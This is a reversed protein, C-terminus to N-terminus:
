AQTIVDPVGLEVSEELVAVGSIVKLPAPAFKHADEADHRLTFSDDPCAPTHSLDSNTSSLSERGDEVVDNPEVTDHASSIYPYQPAYIYAPASRPTQAVVDHGHVQTAYESSSRNSNAAQIKM